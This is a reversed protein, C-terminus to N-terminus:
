SKGKGEEVYEKFDDFGFSEFDAYEECSREDTRLMDLYISVSFDDFLGTEDNLSLLRSDMEEGLEKPLSSKKRLYSYVGAAIDTLYVMESAEGGHRMAEYWDEHATKSEAVHGFLGFFNDVAEEDEGDKVQEAIKLLYPALTKFVERIDDKDTAEWAREMEEVMSGTM